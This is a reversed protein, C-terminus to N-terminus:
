DILASPPRIMEIKPMITGNAFAKSVHTIVDRGKKFGLREYLAIARHNATVVHLIVEYEDAELWKLAENFLKSGVGQGQAEPSVYLSKIIRYDDDKAAIAYGLLKQDKEAAFVAYGENQGSIKWRFRETKCPLGGKIKWREKVMEESVDPLIKPYTALWTEYNIGAIEAADEPVARRIKVETPHKGTM